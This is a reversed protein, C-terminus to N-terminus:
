PGLVRASAKGGSADCYQLCNGVMHLNEFTGLLQKGDAVEAMFRRRTTLKGGRILPTLRAELGASANVGGAAAKADDAAQVFLGHTHLQM